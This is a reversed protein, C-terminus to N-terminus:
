EPVPQSLAAIAVIGLAIRIRSGWVIPPASNVPENATNRMAILINLM